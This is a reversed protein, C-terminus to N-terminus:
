LTIGFRDVARHIPVFFAAGINTNVIKGLGIHIGLLELGGAIPRLMAMGSDGEQPLPTPNYAILDDFLYVLRRSDMFITAVGEAILSGRVQPSVAGAGIFARVGNRSFEGSKLSSLATIPGIGPV